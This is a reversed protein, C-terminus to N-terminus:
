PPPALPVVVRERETSKGALALQSKLSEMADVVAPPGYEIVVSAILYKVGARAVPELAVVGVPTVTVVGRAGVALTASVGAPMAAPPELATVTVSVLGLLKASLPTASVTVSGVPTVIAEAGPIEFAQPPLTAAVAPPPLMVSDPPESVLAPVQVKRALTVALAAM